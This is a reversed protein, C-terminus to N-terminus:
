QKKLPTPISATSNEVTRALRQLAVRTTMLAERQPESLKGTKEALMLDIPQVASRLDKVLQSHLSRVFATQRKEAEQSTRISNNLAGFLRANVMSISVYDAVAELLVQAEKEFPRAERRMVLLMGIVESRVKVPVACVSRGLSAVRLKLLPEGSISLTEGSQAVLRSVGDDLPKNMRGAWDDPLGRQAFLFFERSKEDRILLWALDGGGLQIAGDVIRQFLARQNTTSSVAKGINILTNLERLKSQLQQHVANLKSDLQQHERTEHVRSLVREVAALVEADRAPWFIYDAAGLRFAQIM